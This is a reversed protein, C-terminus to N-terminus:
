SAPHLADLLKEMKSSRSGKILIATNNIAQTKLWEAALLSNEFHHCRLQDRYKGFNKGVLVVTEYSGASLLKVIREHEADTADGLEAMDGLCVMKKKNPLANFNKLAAEMSTPNANYADLIIANTGQQLLQSRSNDPAYEAIAADILAADVGFYRGVAVASLINEFNYAGVLQSKIEGHQQRCSWKVHLFPQDSVLEGHCDAESTTGYRFVQHVNQQAAMERLHPNDANLFILKDKQSLFAYLEGKGKKVGEFGGFGELHAKGVNTILGFEPEAYRCYGAIEQQHNAGMEIVAFEIDDTISLLTLPVGIHNNLNGQTALTNFKKSLVARVLEKTTTKGNSGTIALVPIKLHQRHHHALEQLALLVDSVLLCKEGVAFEPEDVVAYAAGQEIARAAFANGNFTPGKLAFFICGPSLTRTDTCIKPHQRYFSYLEAITTM